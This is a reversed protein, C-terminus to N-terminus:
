DMKFDSCCMNYTVYNVICTVCGKGCTDQWGQRIINKLLLYYNLPSRIGVEPEHSSAHPSQYLCIALIYNCAVVEMHVSLHMADSAVCILQVTTATTTIAGIFWDIRWDYAWLQIVVIWWDDLTTWPHIANITFPEKGSCYNCDKDWREQQGVVRSGGSM